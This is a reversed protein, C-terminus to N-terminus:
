GMYIESVPEEWIDRIKEQLQAIEDKAEQYIREGNIVVGGPLQVGEYKFLNTGWQEKILAATYDKLWINNWLLSPDSPSSSNEQDFFVRESDIILWQGEAIDVGWEVRIKLENNYRTFDFQQNKGESLMQIMSQNSNWQYYYQMSITSAGDGSYFDSLRMQYVPDFVGGKTSTSGGGPFPIVNRVFVVDDPILISERNMDDSTIQHKHLTRATSDSHFEIFYELADDVRDDVQEDAVNIQIVPAGLKRLSYNKLDDRSRCKAM